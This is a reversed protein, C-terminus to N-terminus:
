FVCCSTEIYTYMTFYRAYDLDNVYGDEGMTVSKKVHSYNLDVRM